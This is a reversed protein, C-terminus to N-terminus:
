VSYNLFINVVFTKRCISAFVLCQLETDRIQAVMSVHHLLMGGDLSSSGKSYQCVDYCFYFLFVAKPEGDANM